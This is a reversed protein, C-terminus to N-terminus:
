QPQAHALEQERDHSLLAAYAFIHSMEEDTFQYDDRIERPTMGGALQDLVQSVAIRHGQIIPKGGLIDPDSTIGSSLERM